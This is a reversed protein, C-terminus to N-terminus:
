TMGKYNWRVQVTLTAGHLGTFRRTNFRATVYGIDGTKLIKKEISPSTCGCSSRVSVLEIDQKYINKAAFQHVTDSGRAVNGFDHEREAFMKAVWREAFGQEAVLSAMVAVMLTLLSKHM